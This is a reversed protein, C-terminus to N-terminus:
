VARGVAYRNVCLGIVLDHLQPTKAFGITKRALRTSRTRVTLHQRESKQPHRTGPSQVDPALHRTYAGWSDTDSHTLGFPELLAKLPVFVEATRRGLVSAFVKGTHHDIAQWRWRPHGKHGVCSRMADVEAEADGAREVDWAVEARHLPRLVATHVAERVAAKKQLARRVTNPCLPLSRATDRGGRANLRLDIM